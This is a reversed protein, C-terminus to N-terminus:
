RHNGKPNSRFDRSPARDRDIGALQHRHFGGAATEDDNERRGERLWGGQVLASNSGVVTVIHQGPELWAGDFVPVNSNTACIVVDADRIAERTNAVPVFDAQVIGEM